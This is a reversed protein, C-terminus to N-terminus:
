GDIRSVLSPFVGAVAGVSMQVLTEVADGQSVEDNFLYQLGIRLWMALLAQSVLHLNPGDAGLAETLRGLWHGLLEAGPPNIGDRLKTLDLGGAVRQSYAVVFDRGKSWHDLFVEATRRVVEDLDGGGWDSWIPQLRGVLEANFEALLEDLVAEKSKFHVYFTGHAVGAERTIAGIPTQAVGRDAFCRLAADRLSSRTAAKQAKRLSM